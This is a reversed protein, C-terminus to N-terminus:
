RDGLLALEGNQLSTTACILTPSGSQIIGGLSIWSNGNYVYIKSNKHADLPSYSFCVKLSAPQTVLTTTVEFGDSRFALGKPPRGILLQPTKVREIEVGCKTEQTIVEFIVDGMNAIKNGNCEIYKERIGSGLTGNKTGAWVSTATLALSITLLFALIFMITRNMFYSRKNFEQSFENYNSQFAQNTRTKNANKHVV